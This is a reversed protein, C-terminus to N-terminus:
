EPHSIREDDVRPRQNGELPDSGQLEHPTEGVIKDTWAFNAQLEVLAFNGTM